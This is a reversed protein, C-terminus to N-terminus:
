SAARATARLPGVVSEPALSAGRDAAEPAIGGVATSSRRLREAAGEPSRPGSERKSVFTRIGDRRSLSSPTSRRSRRNTPGALGSAGASWALAQLAETQHCVVSPRRLLAPLWMVATVREGLRAPPVSEGFATKRYDDPM